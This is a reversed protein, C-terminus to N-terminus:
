QEEKSKDEIFPEPMKMYAIIEGNVKGQVRGNKINVKTVYRKCKITKYTVLYPKDKCGSLEQIYYQNILTCPTWEM